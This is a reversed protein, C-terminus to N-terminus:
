HVVQVSSEWYTFCKRNLYHSFNKFCNFPAFYINRHTQTKGSNTWKDSQCSKNLDKSSLFLNTINEVFLTYYKAELHAM